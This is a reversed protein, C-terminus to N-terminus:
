NEGANTEMEHLMSQAQMTELDVRLMADLEALQRPSLIAAASTHIRRNSAKLMDSIQQQMKRRAQASPEIDADQTGVLDQVEQQFRAQETHLTGILPEFQDDRLADAGDALRARLESARNRSPHSAIYEEMKPFLEDGLIAHLKEEDDRRERAVLNELQLRQEDTTVVPLVRTESRLQRDIWYEVIADGQAPSIGLVRILEARRRAFNPRISARSIEYYKPDRLMRRRLAMYEDYDDTAIGADAGSPNAARPPAESAIPASTVSLSPPSVMIVPHRSGLAAVKSQLADARARENERDRWFFYTSAALAMSVAVLVLLLRRM